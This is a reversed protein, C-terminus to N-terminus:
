QRDIANGGVDWSGGRSISAGKHVPAPQLFRGGSTKGCNTGWTFCWDLRNDRFRPKNFTKDQAIAM